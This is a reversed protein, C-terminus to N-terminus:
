VGAEFLVNSSLRGMVLARNDTAQPLLRAWRLTNAGAGVRTLTEFLFDCDLTDYAKEFDCFVAFASKKDQHLVHPLLHLTQINDGISRGRIFATQVPDIFADM